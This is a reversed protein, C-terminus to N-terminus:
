PFFSTHKVRVAPIIYHLCWIPGCWLFGRSLSLNSCQTHMIKLDTNTSNISSQKYWYMVFLVCEEVYMCMCTITLYQAHSAERVRIWFINLSIGVTKFINISVMLSHSCYNLFSSFTIANVPHLYIYFFLIIIIYMHSASIQFHMSFRRRHAKDSGKVSVLVLFYYSLDVSM